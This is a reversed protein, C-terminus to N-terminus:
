PLKSQNAQAAASGFRWLDTTLLGARSSHSAILTFGARALPTSHNPLRTTRLNTLLRFAFYLCRIIARAPLEMRGGPIHFDSVVWLASSELRPTIQEILEEVEAQPLCDLFFHTVVLDYAQDKAGDSQHSLFSLASTQHTRVRRANGVAIAECNERLVQLMVASTDVADAELHRSRELLEALFRGDGDGLVLAHSQNLLRPLFHLRCRELARGLTLYELWRYPRAIRDFNPLPVRSLSRSPPM